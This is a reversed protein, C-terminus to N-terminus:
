DFCTTSILFALCKTVFAKLSCQHLAYPNIKKAADDGPVLTWVDMATLYNNCIKWGGQITSRSARIIFTM